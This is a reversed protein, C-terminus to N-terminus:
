LEPNEVFDSALNDFEHTRTLGVQGFIFCITRKKKRQNEDVRLFRVTELFAGELMKILYYLLQFDSEQRKTFLM